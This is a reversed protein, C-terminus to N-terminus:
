GGEKGRSSEAEMVENFRQRFHPTPVSRAREVIEDLCESFSTEFTDSQLKWMARAGPSGFTDYAFGRVYATWTAEDFTGSRYQYFDHEMRRFQARYLSYARMFQAHSLEHHNVSLQIFIDLDAESLKLLLDQWGTSTATYTLAKASKTNQRIQVALYALTAVVAIAGVFEGFNGLLQATDILNM